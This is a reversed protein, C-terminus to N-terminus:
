ETFYQMLQNRLEATAEKETSLAMQTFWNTIVADLFTSLTVSDATSHALHNTLQRVFKSIERRTAETPTGDYELGFTGRKYGLAIQKLAPFAKKLVLGVGSEQQKAGGAAAEREKQAKLLPAWPSNANAKVVSEVVGDYLVRRTFPKRLVGHIGCMTLFEKEDAAEQDLVAIFATDDAARSELSKQVFSAITGPSVSPGIICADVAQNRVINVGHEVSTAEILESFLDTAKLASIIDRRSSFRSDIVTCLSLAPFKPLLEDAVKEKDM